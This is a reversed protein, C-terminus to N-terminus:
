NAEQWYNFTGGVNSWTPVGGTVSLVQNSGGIGLRSLTGNSNRYYIDGTADSGLNLSVASTGTGIAINGTSASGITLTQKDATALTGDGTLYTAGNGINASITATPVGGAINI